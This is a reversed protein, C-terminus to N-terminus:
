VDATVEETEDVNVRVKGTLLDQMLGSKISQLKPLSSLNRLAVFSVQLLAESIRSQESLSPVTVLLSRIQGFNIAPM